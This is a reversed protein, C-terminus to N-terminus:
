KDQERNVESNKDAKGTENDPLGEKLLEKNKLKQKEVLARAEEPTSIITPTLFILLETKRITDVTTRFLYGLVPIDGLLPVRKTAKGKDNRILGGLVVTGNNEVSIVTDVERKFTAPQTQGVSRAENLQDVTQHVKLRVSEEGIHPEIELTIGVDKFGFSNVVTPSVAAATATPLLTSSTNLVPINEAIIIKAKENDLCHLSPRSLINVNSDSQLAHLLVGINPVGATSGRVFGVSLGGQEVMRSALTPSSPKPPYVVGGIVRESGEVPEEISQWEIGLERARDLSVEAILAEVSVQRRMKDLEKLINEIEAYDQPTANIILSNTLKDAVIIPQLGAPGAAIQPQAPVGPPQRPQTATGIVGGGQFMKSLTGALETADSNQLYYVQITRTGPPTPVDLQSILNEVTTLDEVPASVILSNTRDDSVVRTPATAALLRRRGTQQQGQILLQNVQNALQNSSAYKLAFIKVSSRVTEVDLVEILKVLRRVNSANDIILLANAQPFPTVSANKPSVLSAFVARLENADAHQLPIFQTVLRDDDPISELDKGIRTEIAKGRADAASVVKVIKGAPVTAFGKVELISEMVKVAESRPIKTPSIVTVRGRITEDVLYNTGTLESIAKILSMLEIDVFNISILDESNGKEAINKEVGNQEVNDAASSFGAIMFLLILGIVIGSCKKKM